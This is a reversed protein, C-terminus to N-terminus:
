RQAIAFTRTSPAPMQPSDLAVMSALSPWSTVTTSRSGAGTGSPIGVEEPRQELQAAAEGQGLVHEAPRADGLPDGLEGFAHRGPRNGRRVALVQRCEDASRPATASAAGSANAGIFGSITM